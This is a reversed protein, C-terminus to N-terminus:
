QKGKVEAYTIHSRSHSPECPGRVANRPLKHNQHHDKPGGSYLIIYLYICLDVYQVYIFISQIHVCYLM